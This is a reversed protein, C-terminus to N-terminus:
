FRVRLRFSNRFLSLKLPSRPSSPNSGLFPIASKASKLTTKCQLQKPSENILLSKQQPPPSSVNSTTRCLLNSNSGPQQSHHFLRPTSPNSSGSSSFFGLKIGVGSRPSPSPSPSTQKDSITTSQDGDRSVTTCFARRWGTGMKLWVCVCVCWISPSLLEISWM